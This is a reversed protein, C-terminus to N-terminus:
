TSSAIGPLVPATAADTDHTSTSTHVPGSADAVQAYVSAFRDGLTAPDLEGAALALLQDSTLGDYAHDPATAGDRETMAAPHSALQQVKSWPAFGVRDLSAVAANILDRSVTPTMEPPLDGVAGALIDRLYRGGAEAARLLDFKSHEYIAPAVDRLTGQLRGHWDASRVWRRVTDVNVAVDHTSNLLRTTKVADRDARFAWVQFALEKVDDSWRFGSGFNGMNDTKSAVGDVLGNPPTDSM